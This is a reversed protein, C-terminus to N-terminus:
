LKKWNGHPEPPARSPICIILSANAMLEAAASRWAKEDMLIRGIGIVEGPKGLAVVPMMKELSVILM